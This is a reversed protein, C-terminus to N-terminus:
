PNLRLRTSTAHVNRTQLLANGLEQLVLQNSPTNESIALLPQQLQPYYPTPAHQQTSHSNNSLNKRHKIYMFLEILFAILYIISIMGLSLWIIISTPNYSFTSQVLMKDFIEPDTTTNQLNYIKNRLEQIMHDLHQPNDLSASPLTFPDWTWAYQLPPASFRSTSTSYITHKAFKVYCNEPVHIKTTLGLHVTEQSGNRCFITSTQLEPSYVLHDTDTLQFVTEQVPRREFKCHQRVGAEMRLYLSGLCTSSLDHKVVHQKDCLYVHNRQVCNALDTQSLVQFDRTLKDIAILDSNDTIFLAEQIQPHDLHNQDFMDDFTSRSLHQDQFNLSHKIQLDHAYTKFPIPIPFPLYRYIKLLRSNKICPVHVMLEIDDITRSYSVEIQYYDSLKEAQNHFKEEQAINQVASHMIEMQEPTLLDVSLRRHHLQQISNTIVTVRDEFMDLQETIQLQLLGPNYEAMLDIVDVISKLSRKMDSIDRDHQQTVRVLM